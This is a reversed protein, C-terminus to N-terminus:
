ICQLAVLNPPTIYLSM